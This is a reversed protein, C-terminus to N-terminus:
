WSWKGSLVLHEPCRETNNNSVMSDRFEHVSCYSGHECTETFRPDGHGAAAFGSVGTAAGLLTKYLSVVYGPGVSSCTTRELFLRSKVVEPACAQCVGPDLGVEAQYAGM